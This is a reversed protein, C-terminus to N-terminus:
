RAGGPLLDWLMEGIGAIKAKANQYIENRSDRPFSNRLPDIQSSGKLSCPTFLYM